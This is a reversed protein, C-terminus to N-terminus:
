LAEVVLLEVRVAETDTRTLSRAFAGRRDWHVQDDVLLVPAGQELWGALEQDADWTVVRTPFAWAQVLWTAVLRATRRDWIIDTEMTKAMLGYRSGSIRSHLITFQAPDAQDPEPTCIASLLAGDEGDIAYSLRIENVVNARGREYTIPSVRECGQGCTLVAVADEEAADYRWRVPRLGDPGSLMSIPLLPLLNDQVWEWPSCASNIYGSVEFRDLYAVLAEVRGWDVRLSSRGLMYRLLSGAGSVGPLARGQTWCVWLSGTKDIAFTTTLDVVAVTRGLLDEVHSVTRTVGAGDQDLITVTSAEVLHGAVMLLKAEYSINTYDLVIGPSGRGLVAAGQDDTTLGPAGFVIPYVLELSDDPTQFADQDWTSASVVAAADPIVAVDDFPNEELSFRVPEDAAGYEPQVVTGVIVQQRDEWPQGVAWLALEGSAAALDHGAEIREAVDIPFLVEIAVSRLEPSTTLLEAGDEYELVDLGGDHPLARGDEDVPAVPYSSFRYVQGAWTLTLLWVLEGELDERTLRGDMLAM